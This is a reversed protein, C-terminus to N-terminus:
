RPQERMGIAKRLIDLKRQLTATDLCSFEWFDAVASSSRAKDNLGLMFRVLSDILGQLILADEQTFDDSHGQHVLRNRKHILAGVIMPVDKDCLCGTVRRTIEKEDGTGMVVELAQWLHFFRYVYDSQDIAAGYLLVGASVHKLIAGKPRQEVYELCRMARDIMRADLASVNYGYNGLRYRADKLRMSDDYCKLLYSPSVSSLQSPRSTITFTFTRLAFNVWARASEFKRHAAEIAEAPSSGYEEMACYAYKPLNEEYEKPLAAFSGPLKGFAYTALAEESDLFRVKCKRDVIRFAVPFLQEAPAPKLNISVLVRYKNKKRASLRKKEQEVARNLLDTTLTRESRLTKLARQIIAREEPGNQKAHGPVDVGHGLAYLLRQFLFINGGRISGDPEMLNIASSVLWLLMDDKSQGM